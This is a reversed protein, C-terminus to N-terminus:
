PNETVELMEIELNLYKSKISNLYEKEAACHPCSNSYFLYLKVKELAKSTTPFLLGFVILFGFFLKLLKGKYKSKAM